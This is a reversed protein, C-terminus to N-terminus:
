RFKNTQRPSGPELIQTFNYLFNFTANRKELEREEALITFDRVREKVDFQTLEDIAEQKVLARRGVDIWTLQKYAAEIKAQDDKGLRSGNKQVVIAGTWCRTLDPSRLDNHAGVGPTGSDYVESADFSYIYDRRLYLPNKYVSKPAELLLPDALLECFTLQNQDSHEPDYFELLPELQGNPLGRLGTRGLAAMQPQFLGPEDAPKGPWPIFYMPFRLGMSLIGGPLEAASSVHNIIWEIPASGLGGVMTMGGNIVDGFPPGTTEKTRIDADEIDDREVVLGVDQSYANNLLIQSINFPIGNAYDHNTFVIAKRPVLWLLKAKPDKKEFIAQWAAERYGFENPRLAPNFLVLSEIPAEWGCGMPDCRRVSRRIELSLGKSPNEGERAWKLADLKKRIEDDERKRTKTASELSKHLEDLVFEVKSSNNSDRLPGAARLCAACCARAGCQHEGVKKTEATGELKDRCVDEHEATIWPSKMKDLKRCMLEPHKGEKLAEFQQLLETLVVQKRRAAYAKDFSRPFIRKKVIWHRLGEITALGALKAGYSHGVVHVKTTKELRFVKPGSDGLPEGVRNPSHGDKMRILEYLLFSLPLDRAVHENDNGVGYQAWDWQTLLYDNPYRTGLANAYASLSQKWITPLFFITHDLFLTVLKISEDLRFPLTANAVDTIPRVASPWAVFVFYPVFDSSRKSKLREDILAMYARYNSVAEELTYNWGHVIIYIDTIPPTNEKNQRCIMRQSEDALTECNQRNILNRYKLHAQLDKLPHTLLRNEKSYLVFTYNRQALIDSPTSIVYTVSCGGLSIALSLLFLRSVTMAPSRDTYETLLYSERRPSITLPKIADNINELRLRCNNSL